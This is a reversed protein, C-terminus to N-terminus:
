SKAPPVTPLPPGNFEAEIIIEVADSVGMISGPPPIGYAVGFDSRNLVGKASFGIRAAPDFGAMGPYGGNFTANLTVPKTVGRLTLEGSIRATAPGTLETRTSRYTMAPFKAADLWEPGRLQANFDVVEPTPFDTELSAADVTASLTAAAPKAPDLNLTADFRKFRATYNSFGMHSVRFTLSAHTKDLKYVGAPIDAAFASEPTLALAALTLLILKM